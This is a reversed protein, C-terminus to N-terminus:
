YYTLRYFFLFFCLLLAYCVAAELPDMHVPETPMDKTTRGDFNDSRYFM